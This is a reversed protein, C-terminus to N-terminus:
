SDKAISKYICSMINYLVIGGELSIIIGLHCFAPCVIISEPVAGAFKDSDDPFYHGVIYFEVEM